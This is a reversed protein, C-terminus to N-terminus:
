SAHRPPAAALAAADQRRWGLFRQCRACTSRLHMRGNVTTSWSLEVDLHACTTPPPCFPFTLQADGAPSEPARPGITSYTISV